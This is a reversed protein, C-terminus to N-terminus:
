RQQSCVCGAARGARTWIADVARAGAYPDYEGSPQYVLGPDYSIGHRELANRYADRRQIADGGHVHGAVFAIRRRGHVEVLHDVMAAIGARNDVFVSPHGAFSRAILVKPVPPLSSLLEEVQEDLFTFGMVGSVIMGQLGLGEILSRQLIKTGPREASRRLM